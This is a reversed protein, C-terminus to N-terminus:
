FPRLVMLYLNILPLLSATAGALNWIRCLRWYADPITADREFTRAMRSQRLQVPVLIAVWILGSVAFLAVGAAIWGVKWFAGDLDTAFVIGMMVGSVAVLGAGPGTFVVDTVGVLRQAFAIVKPDRTRDALTKWLATVLINGVFLVVGLLHLMKVLRYDFEM